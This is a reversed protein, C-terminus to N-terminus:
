SFQALLDDRLADEKKNVAIGLQGAIWRLGYKDMTTIYEKTLLGKLVAIWKESSETRRLIMALYDQSDSHRDYPVYCLELDDFYYKSQSKNFTIRKEDVGMQIIAKPRTIDDDKMEALFEAVGKLMLNTPTKKKAEEMTFVKNELEEQLLIENKTGAKSIGWAQALMRMKETDMDRISSQVKLKANKEMLEKLKDGEPDYVQFETGVLGSKYMIFFAYDPKTRLPINEIESSFTETNDNPPVEVLGNSHILPRGKCYGWTVGDSDTKTLKFLMMSPIEPMNTTGDPSRNIKPYGNRRLAINGTPFRVQLEKLKEQYQKSYEELEHGKTPNLPLTKNNVILM